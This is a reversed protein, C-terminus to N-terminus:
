KTRLLRTKEQFPLRRLWNEDVGGAIVWFNGERMVQHYSETCVLHLALMEITLTEHSEQDRQQAQKDMSDGRNRPKGSKARASPMFDATNSPQPRPLFRWSFPTPTTNSLLIISQPEHLSPQESITDPKQPTSTSEELRYGDTADGM